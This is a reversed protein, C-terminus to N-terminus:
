MEGLVKLVADAVNSVALEKDWKSLDRDEVINSIARLELAPVGALLAAHAAAAGEMNECVVKFRRELERAWGINGTALSVTSFRGAKAGKLASRAIKLLEKDMAIENYIKKRGIRALPLSMEKLTLFGEPSDAGLDAYVETTALAVNGIALRSGPYAGGIGFIVLASPRHREILLAATRAASAPGIGTVAHVVKHGSLQGATSGDRMTRRGKMASLVGEAEFATASVLGIPRNTSM